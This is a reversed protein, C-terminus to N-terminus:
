GGVGAGEGNDDSGVRAGTVAIDVGAGVGAGPNKDGVLEVSVSFDLVVIVSGSHQLLSMITNNVISAIGM